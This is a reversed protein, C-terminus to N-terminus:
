EEATSSWRSSVIQVELEVIDDFMLESDPNRRAIKRLVSEQSANAYCYACLHPCTNYAGIDKSVICGCVKRQQGM